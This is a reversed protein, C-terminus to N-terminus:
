RNIEVTATVEGVPLEQPWPIIFQRKNGALINKGEVSNLQQKTLIISQNQNNNSTLKIEVDRLLQHATGKNEFLIVLQDKGEDNKRHSVSELVLSSKINRPTIYIAGQHNFLASINVRIGQSPQQEITEPKEETKVPIPVQATIMWYALEQPPQPDGVWTLRVSQSEGPKLIIQPPYLLFDDEVLSQSENGDIDIERKTCYIEVALIEKSVNEILFTKTVGSGVPSLKATTPVVLFSSQALTSPITLCNLGMIAFLTLGIKYFRKM